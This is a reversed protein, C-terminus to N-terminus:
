IQKNLPLNRYKSMDLNVDINMEDTVSKVPVLKYTIESQSTYHSQHTRQKKLYRYGKKVANYNTEFIKPDILNLLEATYKCATKEAYGIRILDTVIFKIAKDFVTWHAPKNKSPEVGKDTLYNLSWSEAYSLKCLLDEIANKVAKLLHPDNVVPKKSIKNRKFSVYIDTNDDYKNLIRIIKQYDKQWKLREKKAKNYHASIEKYDSAKVIQYYMKDFYYLNFGKQGIEYLLKARELLRKDFHNKNAKDKLEEIQKHLFAMGDYHSDSWTIQKIPPSYSKKRYKNIVKKANNKYECTKCDNSSNDPFCEKKDIERELDKCFIKM